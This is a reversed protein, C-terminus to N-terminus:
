KSFIYSYPSSSMRLPLAYTQSMVASSTPFVRPVGVAAPWSDGNRLRPTSSFRSSNRRIRPPSNGLPLLVSRAFISMPEGFKLRRSGTSYRIRCSSCWLVPFSHHM